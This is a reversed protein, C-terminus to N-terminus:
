NYEEKRIDLAPDNKLVLVAYEAKKSLPPGRKVM